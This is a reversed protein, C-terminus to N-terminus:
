ITKENERFDLISEVIVLNDDELTDIMMNIREREQLSLNDLNRFLDRLLIKKTEKDIYYIGAEGRYFILAKKGSNSLDYPYGKNLM